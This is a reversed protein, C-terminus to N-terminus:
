QLRHVFAQEPMTAHCVTCERLTGTHGQLMNFKISDNPERSRAIAHPSDHCGACYIKGHGISLRYLPNDLAYGSGHCNVNDCRPENLWPSANQRVQDMTGHCTTCNFAFNQSMTCRLCQTNPGPHCNYCGDTDPTIDPLDKHHNHMANSLESVGPTGPAGLAASAHCKACLVPRSEMLAPSYQGPNLYDHLSLINTAVNGTPTIPYSTTADGDDAHCNICNVESSVPAVVINTALREGTTSDSVVIEALQYPSPIWKSTNKKLATIDTFETLPIGEAVFHDGSLDMQGQLGKGGLGVNLPLQVNFLSQAYQWFNTKDPFGEKGASYTNQPFSYEVKIGSTVIVPPDGVRIVQAWLTNYPPLIAMNSFDRDYCHMGLNNWALIRYQAATGLAAARPNQKSSPAASVRGYTASCYIIGASTISVLIGAIIRSRKIQRNTLHKEM